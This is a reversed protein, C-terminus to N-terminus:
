CRTILNCLQEETGVLDTGKRIHLCHVCSDWHHRVYTVMGPFWVLQRVDRLTEALQPHQTNDHCFLLIDRKLDVKEWDKTADAKASGADGSTIRAKAGAPM